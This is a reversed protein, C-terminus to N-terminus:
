RWIEDISWDTGDSRSLQSAPAFSTSVLTPIRRVAGGMDGNQLYSNLSALSSALEEFELANTNVSPATSVPNM